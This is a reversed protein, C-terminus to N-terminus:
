RILEKRKKQRRLNIIRQGSKTKMRSLFGNKRKKKITTVTKM